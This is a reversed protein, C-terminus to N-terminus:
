KYSLQLVRLYTFGNRLKLCRATHLFHHTRSRRMGSMSLSSSKCSISAGSNHSLPPSPTKPKQYEATTGSNDFLSSSLWCSFPYSLGLIQTYILISCLFCCCCLFDYADTSGREWFLREEKSSWLWNSEQELSWLKSSIKLLLTIPSPALVKKAKTM